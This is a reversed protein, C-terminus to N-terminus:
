KRIRDLGMYEKGDRGGYRGIYYRPVEMMGLGGLAMQRANGFGRISDALSIKSAAAEEHQSIRAGPPASLLRTVLQVKSEPSHFAVDDLMRSQHVLDTIDAFSMGHNRGMAHTVQRLKRSPFTLLYSLAYLVSFVTLAYYAPTHTSIRVRQTPVYFQAWFVGGALIPLTAAILTVLSLAAVRWHKNALASATVFGPLEAVYSLLLSREALEGDDKSLAEFAQLRRYAYDIDLWFLLCLMGLLAPVFSYLFNTGSFGDTNVPAPVDPTFGKSVQTSPLYSVILFALMLVIAIIAWLAAMSLHLFWPLAGGAHRSGSEENDGSRPLMKERSHRQDGGEVDEATSFRSVPPAIQAPKERIRGDELSYQRAAKDSIGYTHFIENPRAGSRWYGLQATGHGESGDLANSRELLVALDALSRPDWKLGTPRKGGKLWVMLLITAIALLLYLVIVTWLAGQTAIWRWRGTSPAGDFYVNFSAALLPITFMMLWAVVMFFGAIPLGARFHGIYPLVFGKPYMPLRAGRERSRPSESSMAIFPAVRYVAVEIQVLWLFIIIGLLIPLYEFVFYRSDGLSGYNWLGTHIFSWIGCFILCALYALVLFLFIGLQLPRLIGPIFTLPTHHRGDNSVHTFTDSGPQQQQEYSRVGELDGPRLQADSVRAPNRPPPEDYVDRPELKEIDYPIAAAGAPVNYEGRDHQQAPYDTPLEHLHQQAHEQAQQPGTPMNAGGPGLYPYNGDYGSGLGRYRRSGRVEEDRTLQDLAFRIYPTDDVGPTPPSAERGLDRAVSSQARTPSIEEESKPYDETGEMVTSPVPKRRMGGERLVPTGAIATTATSAEGVVGGSPSHQRRKGAGRMPTKRMEPEERGGVDERSAAAQPLYDRSQLPTRYRSPPTAFRHIAAGSGQRRAEASEASYTSSNSLSYYDESATISQQSQKSHVISPTSYNTHKLAFPAEQPSLHNTM